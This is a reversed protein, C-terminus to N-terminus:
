IKSESLFELAEKREALLEDVSKALMQKSYDDFALDKVLTWSGNHCSVPVSCYLGEPIAYAAMQETSAVAMSCHEGLPTGELWSILHDAIARAASMASSLKRAAIVAAGRTQVKRVFEHEYWDKGATDRADANTGSIRCHTIDPFQTNSHNGWIIVNRVQSVPKQLRQALLFQARNQDLRTLASINEAPISPAYHSLILANTNTPNGVVLVKVSKRAVRDMAEGQVKFIGANARLLDKREMGEKRPMAGVMIAVDCDLFAEDASDTALVELTLM